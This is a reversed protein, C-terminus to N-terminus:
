ARTRGHAGAVGKGIKVSCAGSSLAGWVAQGRRFCGVLRGVDSIVRFVGTPRAVFSLKEAACPRALSGASLPARGGEHHHRSPGLRHSACRGTPLALALNLLPLSVLM